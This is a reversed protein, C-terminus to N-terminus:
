KMFSSTQAPRNILSGEKPIKKESSLASEQHRFPLVSQRGCYDDSGQSSWEEDLKKLNDVDASGTFIQTPFPSTHDIKSDHSIDSPMILKSEKQTVSSNAKPLIGPSVEGESSLHASDSGKKDILSNM